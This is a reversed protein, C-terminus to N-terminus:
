TPLPLAAIVRIPDDDEVALQAKVQERLEAQMRVWQMIDMSCTWAQVEESSPEMCMAAVSAM